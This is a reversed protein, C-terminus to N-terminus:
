ARDPIVSSMEDVLWKELVRLDARDALHSAIWLMLYREGPVFGFPAVLRGSQIESLVLMHPVVAVGLGCAAAQIMIYFHEFSRRPTLALGGNGSAALWDRWGDPRTATSLLVARVLDAPAALPMTRLYDPSCVPGIWERGLDRIVANRPPAITSNRIALSIKDRNFDVKDYNTNLEIQIDQHAQHFASMRPILWCLMISASCSLTLPGPKVRDITAQVLGFAATLGEALFAGEPTPDCSLKGRSLLSVGLTAELAKIHRSVAGHTVCLEEAARTMSRYRATAEFARLAILSPLAQAM